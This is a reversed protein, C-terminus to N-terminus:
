SLVVAKATPKEKKVIPKIAPTTQPSISHLPVKINVGFNIKATIVQTIKPIISTILYVFPKDGTLVAIQLTKPKKDIIM